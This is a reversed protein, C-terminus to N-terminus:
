SNGKISTDECYITPQWPYIPYQPEVPTFPQPYQPYVPYTPLAPPSYTGDGDCIPCKHPRNDSTEVWGKGTCGHCPNVSITVMDVEKKPKTKRSNKKKKKTKKNAM